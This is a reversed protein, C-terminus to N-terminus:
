VAKKGLSVTQQPAYFSEGSVQVNLTTDSGQLTLETVNIPRISRELDKLMALTQGYNSDATFSFRISTSADASAAAAPDANPDAEIGATLSSISVGSKPLIVQMLSSGLVTGDPTVPLADLVVKYASDSPNAKVKQLNPDAMLKEVSQKLQDYTKLNGALVTQTHSQENIVKQNAIAQRVLFQATVLCFVVATSAVAIWIFATKNANKIQQRKKVGTLAKKSNDM